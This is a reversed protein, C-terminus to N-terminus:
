QLALLEEEQQRLERMEQNFVKSVSTAPDLGYEFENKNSYKSYPTRGTKPQITM